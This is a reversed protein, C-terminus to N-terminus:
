SNLLFSIRNLLFFFDTWYFFFLSNLTRILSFFILQEIDQEIFFFYATWHGTWYFFFSNLINRRILWFFVRNLIRLRNLILLRNLLFFVRNLILLRNLSFLFETWNGALHFFRFNNMTNQRYSQREMTELFWKYM